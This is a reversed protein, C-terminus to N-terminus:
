DIIVGNGYTETRYPTVTSARHPAAMPRAFVAPAFAPSGTWDKVIMTRAANGLQAASGAVLGLMMTKYRQGLKVYGITGLVVGLVDLGLRGLKYDNAGYVTTSNKNPGIIVKQSALFQKDVQVGLFDIVTGGLGGVAASVAPGYKGMSVMENEGSLNEQYDETDQTNLDKGESDKGRYTDFSCVGCKKGVTKEGIFTRFKNRFERVSALNPKEIIKEFETKLKRYGDALEPSVASAHNIAEAMHHHLLSYKGHKQICWSDNIKDGDSNVIHEEIAILNGLVNENNFELLKHESDM